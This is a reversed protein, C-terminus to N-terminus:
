VNIPLWIHPAWYCECKVNLSGSLDLNLHRIHDLISVHMTLYQTLTIYVWIEISKTQLLSNKICVRCFIALTMGVAATLCLALTRPGRTVIDKRMPFSFFKLKKSFPEDYLLALMQARLPTDINLAYPHKQGRVQWPWKLDNQAGSSVSSVKPKPTHVYLICM